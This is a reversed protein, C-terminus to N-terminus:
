AKTQTPAVFAAIQQPEKISPLAKLERYFDSSRSKYRKVEDLGGMKKELNRFAKDGVRKAETAVKDLFRIRQTDDMLDSDLASVKPTEKPTKKPAEKVVEAEVPQLPEMDAAEEPTYVGCLVSPLATRIGESIVRAKLMARPFKNWIDKGTLGANKAMEITWEMVFTGCSEHTFEAAVRKDSLELWKIKGGAAQFRALMADAKLTPRGQIVHYDRAVAGISRGEEQAILALTIVQEPKTFGCFGSAVICNAYTQMNQLTLETSM